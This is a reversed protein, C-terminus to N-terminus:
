GLKVAYQQIGIPVGDAFGLFPSQHVVDGASLTKNGHMAGRITKAIGVFQYFDHAPLKPPVGPVGNSRQPRVGVVGGDHARLLKFRQVFCVEVCFQLGIINNQRLAFDLGVLKFVFWVGFGLRVSPYSRVAFPPNKVGSVAM